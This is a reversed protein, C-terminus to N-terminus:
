FVQNTTEVDYGWITIYDKTRDGTFHPMQSTSVKVKVGVLQSSLKLLKQNFEKELDKIEQM